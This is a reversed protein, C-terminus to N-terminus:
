QFDALAHGTRENRHHLLAPHEHILRLACDDEGPVDSVFEGRLEAGLTVLAHQHRRQRDRAYQLRLASHATPPEILIPGSRVAHPQTFRSQRSKNGPCVMTEENRAAMILSVSAMRWCGVCANRVNRTRCATTQVTSGANNKM